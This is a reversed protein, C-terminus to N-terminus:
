NAPNLPGFIESFATILADDVAEMSTQVGCAALSTVGFQRIGCPVIGEFHSLEPDVNLAIGHFTVWRSAKVGIAAIKAEQGSPTVVWVGVRGPRVAGTLGFQALAAIVWRELRAVHCRVDRDRRKLDLMLYAVRQGPGHYTFQGGRGSSYVPFRNPSLLDQAKASIGATYLPPHQLFWLTEPGDGAQLASVIADMRAMAEPYPTLGPSRALSVPATPANLCVYGPDPEM